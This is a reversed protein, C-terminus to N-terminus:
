FSWKSSGDTVPTSNMFSLTEEKPTINNIQIPSPIPILAETPNNKVRFRVFKLRTIRKRTYIYIGRYIINLILKEHSDDVFFM